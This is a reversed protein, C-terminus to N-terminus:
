LYYGRFVVENVLTLKAKIQKLKNIISYDMEEKHDHIINNLVMINEKCLRVIMDRRANELFVQEDRMTNMETNYGDEDDEDDEDDEHDSNYEELRARLIPRAVLPEPEPADAVLPETVVTISYLLQKSCHKKAEEDQLLAKISGRGHVKKQQILSRLEDCMDRKMPVSHDHFAAFLTHVLSDQSLKHTM